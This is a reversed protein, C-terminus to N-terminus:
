KSPLTITKCVDVMVDVSPGVTSKVDKWTQCEVLTNDNHIRSASVKRDGGDVSFVGWVGDTGLKDQKELTGGFGGGAMLSKNQSDWLVSSYEQVLLDVNAGGEGVFSVRKGSGPSTVSPDQHLGDPMKVCAGVDGPNTFGDPCKGGGGGAGGAKVEGAKAEVTKTEGAAKTDGSPKAEDKKKCGPALLSVVVLPLGWSSIKM